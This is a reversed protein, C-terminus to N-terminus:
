RPVLMRWILGDRRVATHYIVALVHLGVLVWLLTVLLGHLAASWGIGGLVAATGSLPLLILVVYFAFHNARAAASLAPHMDSLPPTGWRRRLVLRLLVLVLIAAGSAAHLLSLFDTPLGDETGQRVRDWYHEMGEHSVLQVIVLAFVAWHLVIQWFAYSQHPGHGPPNRIEQM